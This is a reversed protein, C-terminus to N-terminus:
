WCQVYGMLGAWVYLVGVSFISVCLYVIDAFLYVYQVCKVTERCVCM